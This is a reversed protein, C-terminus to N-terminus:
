DKILRSQAVDVIFEGLLLNRGILFKHKLNTRNNLNVNVNYEKGGFSLTMQVVYRKTSKGSTNKVQTEAVVEQIFLFRNGKDDFSSFEVFKKEDVIKEEINEAHLSCTQAGTDVRAMFTAKPNLTSILEVRGIVIKEGSSADKSRLKRLKKSLLSIERVEPIIETRITQQLTERLDEKLNESVQDQSEKQLFSIKELTAEDLTVTKQQNLCSQLFLSLLTFYLFKKTM